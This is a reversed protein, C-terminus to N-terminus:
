NLVYTSNSPTIGLMKRATRSFHAQDSFGGAQAAESLTTGLALVEMSKVLKRWLLLNSLSVGIQEKALVRLRSPSLEYQAAIDVLTSKIPVEDLHNLLAALRPDIKADIEKVVEKVIDFIESYPMSMQFPLVESPLELIGTESAYRDLRAAFASYPALFIHCAPSSSTVVSHEIMPKILLAPGTHHAGSKDVVTIDDTKGLIILYAINKHFDNQYIECVSVAYQKGFVFM